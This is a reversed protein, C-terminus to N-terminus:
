DLLGAGNRSIDVKRAPFTHFVDFLHMNKGQKYSKVQVMCKKSTKGRKQPEMTQKRSYFTCLIFFIIYMIYKFKEFPVIYIYIYM